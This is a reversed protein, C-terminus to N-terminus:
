DLDVLRYERDIGCGDFIQLFGPDALPHDDRHHPAGPGPRRQIRLREDGLHRRPRRFRLDDYDIVV